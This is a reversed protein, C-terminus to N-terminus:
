TSEDEREALVEIIIPMVYLNEELYCQRLICVLEETTLRKLYSRLSHEM